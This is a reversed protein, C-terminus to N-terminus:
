EWRAVADTRLRPQQLKGFDPLADPSSVLVFFARLAERVAYLSLAPDSALSGPEKNSGQAICPIGHTNLLRLSFNADSCPDYPSTRAPM